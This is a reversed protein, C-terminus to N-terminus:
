VCDPLWTYLYGHWGLLLLYGVFIVALGVRAFRFNKTVTLFLLCIGIGISKLWIFPWVGADLSLQVVPNLERGGYSLFLITFFADLINLAAVATVVAFLGPGHHDVFAGEVEVGRRGGRRRGGFVSYHSLM